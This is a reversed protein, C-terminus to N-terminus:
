GEDSGREQIVDFLIQEDVDSGCKNAWHFMYQYPEKEIELHLLEYLSSIVEAIDIYKQPDEPDEIFRKDDFLMFDGNRILKNILFVRVKTLEDKTM